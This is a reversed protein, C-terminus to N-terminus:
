GGKYAARKARNIRRYKSLGYGFAHPKYNHVWDHYLVFAVGHLMFVAPCDEVVIREARRYLETRKPSDQMV